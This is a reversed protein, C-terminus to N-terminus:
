HAGGELPSGPIAAANKAASKKEGGSVREIIVFLAPILLVGLITAVLMGSFVAMGMVKRGEAGAGSATVLPVVGLIFAFATMLIPRFRLKAGELAAEILGLGEHTKMRAFEVILIANKAALGVLTLIGIQAFINNLYAEGLVTRSLWLGGLAGLVAFPTGLLVSFPLAWSEYQAALILFVFVIGLIFVEVGGSATKEQYSMANWAYGMESPLVEKAVEDLADLTQASSYGPASAGVLEASRYLNFRNTYEPGSMKSTSVLTSLPTMAGTANRVYFLRLDNTDDRFEPEAQVYVKYLRGFRNFDNVYAGGLFAGLTQNVNEIAVGQTYTKERDVEAYIQPVTARYVTSVRGIEPRKSAAEIFRQAQQDLFEPSQGSRDQLMLSFGSGTGLGPIAPPGFTFAVAEPVENSLRKNLSRILGFSKQSSDGRESWPKLTIFFFATNSAYAQTLLSFGTITTVYSVGPTEMLIQEVRKAAEDTRQLSSADPLQVNALIYGQDEEPIFSQPLGGGFFMIGGIIVAFIIATRGMKRILHDAIGVYRKTTRDFVSNFGSYFRGLVGKAPSPPKLVISCLAPSLTLASLASFLVSIAITVAFQMYFRGSIGGMFVVPIFVSSLILAIAIVPGSVEKMAKNTAERPSLGHEIHHMVAEVVVIADDVVIGIALVLGLLSLTNVSFGLFPFISFTAILSVPVTLVPILTARFSQLFVFVVLIVLVVAEILTHKIENVGETVAATTDLSVVYSLDDPFRQSLDVMAKRVDSAVELANSGPIQYLAIIASSEGNYRGVANYLQSGLEIRAVDKLRVQSGDPNSKVIIDGFQEPSTLRGELRVTYSFETGPPAPPGGIQGGPSIVNQGKIAQILDSVTIELTALQDPKIWIRMAYDSGGFLTVQGVGRIRALADTININAYNSLFASDYTSKPSRLSVLMLPFSLSKKVTVGLRKVEEPLSPQGESVRNQVLVNSMDLNSGVEFSVRISSTGDNANISRTYIMNEVGNIKQELPTTVSQEVAISDAGTYTSNVQIEPPVVEPYQSVPLDRLAVLGFIILVISLVIAVTPRRVFFYDM